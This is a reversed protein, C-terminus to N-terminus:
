GITAEHTLTGVEAAGLNRGSRTAALGIRVTGTAGNAVCGRMLTHLAHGITVARAAINAKITRAYIAAFIGVTTIQTCRIFALNSLAGRSVRTNLNRIWRRGAAATAAIGVITIM